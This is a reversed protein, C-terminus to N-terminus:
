ERGNYGQKPRGEGWLAREYKDFECLCNQYDHAELNMVLNDCLQPYTLQYCGDVLAAKVRERLDKFEKNWQDRSVPQRYDRGMVRNLGRGSGPGQAAWTERDMWLATYNEKETVLWRMDAIVQGAMFSGFGYQDELIAVSREISSYDLQGAINNRHLPDVYFDIVSDLKDEGDNGRVMYAGNFLAHGCLRRAKLKAKIVRPNWEEPFGLFGLTAPLNFFRAVACAVLANPHNLNPKYWNEWLWVSVKDDMRRVNCFRYSQLIYDDTWPKPKNAGKAIRVREREIIWYLLREFPDIMKAVQEINVM